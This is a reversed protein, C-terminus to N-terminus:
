QYSIAWSLHVRFDLSFYIVFFFKDVWKILRLRKECFIWRRYKLVFILFFSLISTHLFIIFINDFIKRIFWYMKKVSLSSKWFPVSLTFFRNFKINIIMIFSNQRLHINRYLRISMFLCNVFYEVSFFSIFLLKLFLWHISLLLNIHDVVFLDFFYVFISKWIWVWLLAFMCAIFLKFLKKMESRSFVVVVVFFTKMKIQKKQYM